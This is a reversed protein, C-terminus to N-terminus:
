TVATVVCQWAIGDGYVDKHISGNPSSLSYKRNIYVQSIQVIALNQYSM